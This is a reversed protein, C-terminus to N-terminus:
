LGMYHILEWFCLNGWPRLSCPQVSHGRDIFFWASGQCPPPCHQDSSGVVRNTLLGQKCDWQQLSQKRRGWWELLKLDQNCIKNWNVDVLFFTPSMKSKKFIRVQVIWRPTLCLCLPNMSKWYMTRNRLLLVTLFKCRTVNLLAVRLM